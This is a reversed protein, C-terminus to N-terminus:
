VSYITPLTLHTYSVPAGQVNYQYYRLPHLVSEGVSKLGAFHIVADFQHKDFLYRLANEDRVDANAVEVAVGTIKEVRRVSEASSNDFNDLIVIDFGHEILTVVTHSGIYGAGGTVLVKNLLPQM